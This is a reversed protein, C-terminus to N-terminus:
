FGMYNLCTQERFRHSRSLHLRSAGSSSREEGQWGEPPTCPQFKWFTQSQTSLVFVQLIIFMEMLNVYLTGPQQIQLPCQRFYFHVDLEPTASCEGVHGDLRYGWPSALVESLRSFLINMSVIFNWINQHDINTWSVDKRNWPSSQCCVQSAGAGLVAGWVGPIRWLGEALNGPNSALWLTAPDNFDNPHSLSHPYM